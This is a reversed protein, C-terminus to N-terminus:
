CLPKPMLRRRGLLCHHTMRQQLPAAATWRTRYPKCWGGSALWGMHWMKMWRPEMGTKCLFFFFKFPSFSVLLCKPKSFLYLIYNAVPKVGVQATECVQNPEEHLPPDRALLSSLGVGTEQIHCYKRPDLLLKKFRDDSSSDCSTLGCLM